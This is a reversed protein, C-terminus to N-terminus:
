WAVGVYYADGRRAAADPLRVLDVIHRGDRAFLANAAEPSVAGVVCVDAHAMLEEVTEVLLDALHPLHEVM